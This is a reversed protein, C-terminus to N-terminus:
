EMPEIIVQITCAPLANNQNDTVILRLEYEGPTLPETDWAGGLPSDIVRSNGAAITTWSESGMLAYEYKYYGMNEINVTGKLEIKGSITDGNTPDTWTIQDPICGQSLYATLTPIIGQMTVEVTAEPTQTPPQLTMNITPTPLAYVGPISPTVFTNVVFLGAGLLLSFVVATIGQNFKRQSQEKELGFVARSWERWSLLVKRLYWLLILGAVAYIFLEYQSLFRLLQNM